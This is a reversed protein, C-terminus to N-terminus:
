SFIVPRDSNGRVFCRESYWLLRWILIIMGRQTELFTLPFWSLLILIELHLSIGRLVITRILYFYICSLLVTLILTLSRILFTSIRLLITKTSMIMLTWCGPRDTGGFSTLWDKHHIDFDGFVSVSSCPNMSLFEDIYSSIADFVACFPSLSQYFFFFYLWNFVYIPINM